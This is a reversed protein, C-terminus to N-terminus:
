YGLSKSDVVLKDTSTVTSLPAPTLLVAANSILILSTLSAGVAM